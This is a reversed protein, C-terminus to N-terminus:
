KVEETLFKKFRSFLNQEDLKAKELAAKKANVRKDVEPKIYKNQFSGDVVSQLFKSNDFGYSSRVELPLKQFFERAKILQNEADMLSTPINSFDKVDDGKLDCLQLASTDGCEFRKLINTFSAEQEQSQILSQVDVPIVDPELDGHDNVLHYTIEHTSGPNTPVVEAPSFATYFNM